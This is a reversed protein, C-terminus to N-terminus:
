LGLRAISPWLGFCGRYGKEGVTAYVRLAGGAFLPTGGEDHATIIMEVTRGAFAPHVAVELCRDPLAGKLTSRDPTRQAVAVHAYRTREGKGDVCTTNGPGRTRFAPRPPVPALWMKGRGFSIVTHHRMFVDNGLLGLGRGRDMVSPNDLVRPVALQE